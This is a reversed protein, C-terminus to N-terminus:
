ATFLLQGNSRKLAKHGVLLRVPGRESKLDTNVSLPQSEALHAMTWKIQTPFCFYQCFFRKLEFPTIVNSKKGFMAATTPYMSRHAKKVASIKLQGPFACTNM